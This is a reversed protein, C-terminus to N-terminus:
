KKDEKENEKTATGGLKSTGLEVSGIKSKSLLKQKRKKDSLDVEIIMLNSPSLPFSAKSGDKKISEIGTVFVKERKLIVREVKGEKKRYQGRSIKVKDGKRVQINRLGYKQRLDKSLHVHLIKQKLHLPANHRYKSKKRVQISSKWTTYFSTKVM